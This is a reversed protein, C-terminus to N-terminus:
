FYKYQKYEISDFSIFASILSFDFISSKSLKRMLIVKSDPPATSPILLFCVNEQRKLFESLPKAMKKETMFKTARFTKNQRRSFVYFQQREVPIGFAEAIQPQLEKLSSEKRARWEKPIGFNRDVIDLDGHNRLDRDTAIKVTLNLADEKLKKEREEEEQKQRVLREKLHKPVDSDAVPALLEKAQDERIYVLMYANANKEVKETKTTGTWFSRVSKEVVGGFNENIAEQKTAKTVKSDNFM